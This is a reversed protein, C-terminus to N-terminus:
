LRCNRWFLHVKNLLNASTEILESYDGSLQLTYPVDRIVVNRTLKLLHGDVNVIKGNEDNYLSETKGSNQFVFGPKFAELGGAKTLEEAGLKKSVGSVTIHVGKSDEYAYKKAGLTIFRDYQGDDEYVGMYHEVGHKDTAHSGSEMCEAIRDRNYASFDIDGLFKCSDTDCYVLNDGCLDIGYQLAERAHCTTWIGYQYETYAVNAKKAHLDELSQSEDTIYGLDSFLIRAKVPDQVSMGYISNLLEKNKHYYLEQGAVGKLETKRRFYEINLDRLPDPLKGYHSSYLSVIEMDFSYQREILRYDIDTIALEVLRAALLRGNDICIGAEDPFHLALCKGVSIYPVPEYKNKLQLDKLIVRMIVADGQDMCKHLYRLTLTKRKKFPSIPFDKNVQQSPYSSSIDVSKVNSLIEGTYYRNAHTNGGRFAAKLLQYCEYDPWNKVLFYHYDYMAQKVNRRVFGTSTLPVSYLSDDNLKLIAYVMEVTALVDNVAYRLEKRTLPTDAFRRQTYDFEVGSKKFYTKNYRRSAADLSMNTLRFACRFEFQKYMVAKLVKRQDTCFVEWDSFHYIGALFQIEYSLNFDYIVLKLDGLREKLKLLTDKFQEWTRGILVTHMDIALQWVYMVSQEYEVLRTTEIDFCCICDAYQQKGREGARRKLPKFDLTSFDFYDVNWVM